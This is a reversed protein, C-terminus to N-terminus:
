GADTFLGHTSTGESSNVSSMQIVPHLFM